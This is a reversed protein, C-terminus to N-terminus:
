FPPRTNDYNILPSKDKIKRFANIRNELIHKDQEYRDEKSIKKEKRKLFRYLYIFFFYRQIMVNM